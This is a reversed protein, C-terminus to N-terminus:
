RLKLWDDTRRARQLGASEFEDSSTAIVHVGLERLARNIAWLHLPKNRSLDRQVIPGLAIEGDRWVISAQAGEGPSFEAVVLAVPGIQSLHAVTRALPQPLEKASTELLLLDRRPQDPAAEAKLADTLPVLALGQELRVPHAAAHGAVFPRAVDSPAILAELTYGM